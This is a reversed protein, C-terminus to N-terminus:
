SFILNVTVGTPAPLVNTNRFLFEEYPQPVYNFKYYINMNYTSYVVPVGSAGMLSSYRRIISNLEYISHNTTYKGYLLLLLARYRDNDLDITPSYNENFFNSFYLNQPYSTEDTIVEGDDFGLVRDYPLGSVVNRKQNLIIGWNNLGETSATEINLYDNTFDITFLRGNAFKQTLASLKSSNKYQYYIPFELM